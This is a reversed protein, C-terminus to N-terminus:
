PKLDQRNWSDALSAAAEPFELTFKQWKFHQDASQPAEKWVSTDVTTAGTSGSGSSEPARVYHAGDKTAFFAKAAAAIPKGNITAVGDEYEAQRLLLAEVAPVLEPRVNGAAIAKAVEGDVRTTRLDRAFQDREDQVVKLAADHERKLRAELATINKDDRERQAEADERQRQLDALQRKFEDRERKLEANKNKLGTDESSTEVNETNETSM